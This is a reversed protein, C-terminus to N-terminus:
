KPDFRLNDIMIGSMDYETGNVYIGWDGTGDISMGATLVDFTMTIWQGNTTKNFPQGLVVASDWGKLTMGVETVGPAAKTICIDFKIVYNEPNSLAPRTDWNQAWTWQWGAGALGLMCATGNFDVSPLGFTVVTGWTSQSAGAGDFNSIMLTQDTIADTSGCYVEPMYGQDGDATVMMPTIMGTASGVVHYFELYSESKIGYATVPITYNGESDALLITKIIDLQTGEVKIIGGPGSGSISTIEPLTVQITIQQSSSVETGNLTVIKIVGSAAGVPVTVSLETNSKVEFTGEVEGFIVNATLDLDTGTISITQKARLDLESINSISPVICNLSNGTTETESLTKLTFSGDVVADPITLVIQTASISTFDAALVSASAFTVESVLDLNTGNITFPTANKIETSSVSSIVPKVLVLSDSKVEVGSKAILKLAGEKLTAPTQNIVITTTADQVTVKSGGPLIVESVLDFDLGNITLKEGAKVPNPSISAISPLTVMLEEESYVWAPIDEGESLIDAGDSLIISGTQAKIPLIVEITSRSQSKFDSRLVHVGDSFIIEEVINLYDGEIKITAGAKASKPTFSSISIPESYSIPTLTTIDGSPAHLTVYGPEANQPIVIRIEFDSVITIDSIGTAGPLDISSVKDLNTGIFRLEGGRMAPSPGFSKLTVESSSMQDTVLVEEKNCATFITSGVILLCMLLLASIKNKTNM